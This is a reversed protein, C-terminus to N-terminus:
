SSKPTAAGITKATAELLPALTGLLETLKAIQQPLTALVAATDATGTVTGGLQGLAALPNTGAGAGGGGGGTLAGLAQLPNAANALAATPNAAGALTALPAAANTLAAVPNTAGALAAATPNLSALAQLPNNVFWDSDRSRSRGDRDLIEDFARKYSDTVDGILDKLTDQTNKKSSM